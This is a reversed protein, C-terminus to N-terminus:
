FYVVFWLSSRFSRTQDQRGDDTNNPQATTSHTNHTTDMRRIIQEQAMSLLMNHM